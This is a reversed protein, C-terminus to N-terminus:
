ATGTPGWSDVPDVRCLMLGPGRLLAGLYLWTGRRRCLCVPRCYFQLFRGSGGAHKASRKGGFTLLANEDM